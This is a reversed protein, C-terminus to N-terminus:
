HDPDAALEEDTPLRVEVSEDEIEWVDVLGDATEETKIPRAQCLAAARVEITAGSLEVTLTIATSTPIFDGKQLGEIHRSRMSSAPMPLTEGALIRATSQIAQLDIDPDTPDPVRLVTDTQSQLQTIAKVLAKWQSARRAM